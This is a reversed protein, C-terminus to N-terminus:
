AADPLPPTNSNSISDTGPEAPLLTEDSRDKLAVGTAGLATAATALWWLKRAASAIDLGEPRVNSICNREADHRGVRPASTLYIGLSDPSSLGPREGILVAVMRAGLLDGVEDGLAVRGQEAIVVPGLTWGAPVQARIADLLPLANRHIALSSLGDAIVIVLDCTPTDAARARLGKVSDADLRRGLDPRLLYQARDTAASHVQVTAVGKDQLATALEDVQLAVHVADRAQAHAYGFRLIEDTPMSAGARGLALRAATHRRLDQWPDTTTNGSFKAAQDINISPLPVANDARGDACDALLAAASATGVKAIPAAMTAKTVSSPLTVHKPDSRDSM